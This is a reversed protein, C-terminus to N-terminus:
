VAPAVTCWLLRTHCLQMGAPPGELVGGLLWACLNAAHEGATVWAIRCLAQGCEVANM